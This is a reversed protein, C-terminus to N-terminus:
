TLEHSLLNLALRRLLSFNRPRNGKRIRSADEAFVVDFGWHLQHEVGWHSRIVPALHSANPACSTIYFQVEVTIENSKEAVPIQALVLRHGSPRPASKTCPKSGQPVTM